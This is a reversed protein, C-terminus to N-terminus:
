IFGFNLLSLTTFHAVSHLVGEDLCANLTHAYYIWEEHISPYNRVISFGLSNPCSLKFQVIFKWMSYTQFSQINRGM